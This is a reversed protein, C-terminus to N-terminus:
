YCGAPPARFNCPLCVPLTNLSSNTFIDGGELVERLMWKYIKKL